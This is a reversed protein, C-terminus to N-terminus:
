KFSFVVKGIISDADVYPDIWYRSDISHNRNDGMVFIYGDEVQYPGFDLADPTEALWPENYPKGNIYTVGKKIEVVDGAIGVIRKVLLPNDTDITDSNEPSPKFVVIDGRNFGDFVLRTRVLFSISKAPITNEMSTTPVIALGFCVKFLIFAVMVSVMTPFLFRLVSATKQKFTTLCM